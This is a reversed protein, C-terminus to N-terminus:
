GRPCLRWRVELDPRQSQAESSKYTFTPPFDGSMVEDGIFVVHLRRLRPLRHALVEWGVLHRVEAFLLFTHFIVFRKHPTSSYDPFFNYQSRFDAFAINAAKQSQRENHCCTLLTRGLIASNETEM